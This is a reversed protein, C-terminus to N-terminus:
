AAAVAGADVTYATLSVEPVVAVRIVAEIRAAVPAGANSVDAAPQLWMFTRVVGLAARPIAVRGGISAPNRTGWDNDVYIARPKM